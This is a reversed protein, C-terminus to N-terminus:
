DGADRLDDVSQEGLTLAHGHSDRLVALVQRGLLRRIPEAERGRVNHRADVLWQAGVAHADDFGVLDEGGAEFLVRLRKLSDELLLGRAPSPSAREWLQEVRELAGADRAEHGEHSGGEALY